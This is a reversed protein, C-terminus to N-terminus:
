NQPTVYITATESNGDHIVDTESQIIVIGNLFPHFDTPNVPMGFHIQASQGPLIPAPLSYNNVVGKFVGNIKASTPIVGSIPNSTNNYLDYQVNLVSNMMVPSPYLVLNQVVQAKVCVATCVIAFASLLIKKM